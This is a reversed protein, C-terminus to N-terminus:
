TTGHQCAVLNLLRSRPSSGMICRFAFSFFVCKTWNLNREFHTWSNPVMALGTFRACNLYRVMDSRQMSIIVRNLSCTTRSHTVSGVLSSSCALCTIELHLVGSYAHKIQRFNHESGVAHNQNACMVCTNSPVRFNLAGTIGHVLLYEAVKCDGYFISFFNKYFDSLGAM